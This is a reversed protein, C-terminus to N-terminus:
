SNAEVLQQEELRVTKSESTMFTKQEEPLDFHMMDKLKLTVWDQRVEGRTGLKHRLVIYFFAHVADRLHNFNRIRLLRKWIIIPRNYFIKHAKQYFYLVEKNTVTPLEMICGSMEYESWDETRLYGNKKAWNFLQTGPYPTCVNYIAIDLGLSLSFDLTKQMTVTTEGMNGFIFAGRVELGAKSCVKIAKRTIDENIPKRINIRIQEDGSEIGFMVQHCGAKKMAEAMKESICDARVFATWTIGVKKQVLLECFHFVNKKFVTFTDDYFQVERIGYLKKMRIIEDVVKEASRTRLTTEASNCFTCKGPCGRTMMMNIAPLSKYAGISPYYKNMDILHYAPFPISDLDMIVEAPPNHIIRGDKRYSIGRIDSIPFKKFIKGFTIEGDGRAVIDVFRNRLAETPLADVHVGGLVVTTEPSVEKVIEAIKYSPLATATLVTIGVVRPQIEKIREKVQEISLKDVHVDIVQVKAGQQELYAAITLLGLPPMAAKIGHWINDDKSLWPPNILLVDVAM